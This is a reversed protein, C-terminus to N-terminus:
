QLAHHGKGSFLVFILVISKHETLLDFAPGLLPRLWGQLDMEYQVLSSCVISTFLSYVKLRTIIYNSMEDLLTCM